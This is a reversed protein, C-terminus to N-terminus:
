SLAPPAKEFLKKELEVFGKLMEERYKPALLYAGIPINDEDLGIPITMTPFGCHPGLSTYNAFYILDIKHKTFIENLDNTAKEREKLGDIYETENMRGSTNYQCLELLKQGYKLAEKENARNFELIDNLTKMKTNEGLSSLYNNINRKFEYKMAYFISQTQKIELGEIVKAGSDRIVKIM